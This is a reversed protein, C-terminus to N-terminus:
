RETSLVPASDGSQSHMAKPERLAHGNVYLKSLINRVHTKVTGVTIYLRRAIAANSHGNAILQLM